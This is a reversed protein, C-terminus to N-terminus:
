RSQRSGIHYVAGVTIGQPHWKENLITTGPYKFFDPWYQYEYDARVWFRHSLRYDVGGGASAITRSQQYRVGGTIPYDANGYGFLLKAYPRLNHYHQWTYIPGVAALDVREVPKLTGSRGYNLDRAEGELGIGHLIWPVHTPSYGAWLTGGLIHGSEVRPFNFASLGLGISFPSTKENASQAVQARASGVTCALFVALVLALKLHPKLRM